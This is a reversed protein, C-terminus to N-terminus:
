ENGKKRETFFYIIAFILSLISIGFGVLFLNQPRYYILFKYANPAGEIYWANAYINASFQHPKVNLKLGETNLISFNWDKSYNESFVIIHPGNVESVEGSYEVPSSKKFSILPTTLLSQQDSQNIFLLRNSFVKYVRLDDYLVKTGLPDAIFPAGVEIRMKSQVRVPEYYFSFTKWEPYNPMREAEAKYLTTPSFQTVLTKANNGYIQKYKLEIYYNELPNFSTVNFDASIDAKEINLISLFEGSEDKEQSYKEINYLGEGRGEGGKTFVFGKDFNGGFVLNNNIINLVIKHNGKALLIPKFKVYHEGVDSVEWSEEKGDFNLKIPKTLDIGFDSLNHKELLPQYLGSRLVDFSFDAKSLDRSFIRNSLKSLSLKFDLFSKVQSNETIITRNSYDDILPIQNIINDESNVAIEKSKLIPFAQSAIDFPSIKNVKEASYIKPLKVQDPINYFSWEGFKKSDFRKVSSPLQSSLSKQDNKEFITSINLKSAYANIAQIQDAKISKYFDLILSVVEIQTLNLPSFLLERETLLELISEVGRYGWKFQEIEDEPYGIIRGDGGEKLWEKAEFIYNPFTVYFSDERGPRFIKGSILPYSYFLIGVILVLISFNLLKNKYTSDSQGIRSNLTHFFLAITGSISLVVLPGFIYWPSRFLSFFPINDLMWKYIYGTPPHTGSSLFIGIIFMLGFIIQFYRKEDNKLVLSLITLSTILFSFIIFIPHYFYNLSYPIYLPLDTVSDFAYWDWAGQLRMVNILSTNESLSNIWNNFGIGYISGQAPIDRYIFYVTPIIWFSNVAAIFFIIIFLEKFRKFIIKINFNILIGAMFYILITLLFSLFYAPNIGTGSVIIGAIVSGLITKKISIKQLRLLEFISLTIPIAAMLSLNAVKVNEWTNFIYINFSYFVSFLVQALYVKPFIIRAFIFSSLNILTFWFIFSFIEVQQLNLGLIFPVVQVSHFFLGATSSSFDIGANSIPNWVFFRRLFWVYPDLPFNTDIGNILVDGKGYFWILPVLGFLFIPIFQLKEFLQNFQKM